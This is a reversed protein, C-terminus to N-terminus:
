LVEVGNATIRHSVLPLSASPTDGITIADELVSIGLAVQKESSAHVVALPQGEEVRAGPKASIVFGVSPDVSDEMKTRGGGLAIVGYGIARPDVAQVVGGRPADFQKQLPARPLLSPDRVVGPEGGQAAVVEELKSRAAGSEIAAHMARRATERTPTVGALVLMEAGLAMTVEILDAPG